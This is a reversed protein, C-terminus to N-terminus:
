QSKHKEVYVALFPCVHCFDALTSYEFAMADTLMDVLKSAEDLAKVSPKVWKSIDPSKNASIDKRVPCLEMIDKGFICPKDAEQKTEENEAM